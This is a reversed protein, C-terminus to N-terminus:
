KAVTLLNLKATLKSVTAKLTEVTERLNENEETLEENIKKYSIIDDDTDTDSCDRDKRRMKRREENVGVILTRMLQGYISKDNRHGKPVM